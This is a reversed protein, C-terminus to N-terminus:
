GFLFFYHSNVIFDYLYVLLIGLLEFYNTDFIPEFINSIVNQDVHLVHIGKQALDLKSDFSICVVENFAAVTKMVIKVLKLARGEPRQSLQATYPHGQITSGM